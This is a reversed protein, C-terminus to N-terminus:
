ICKKGSWCSSSSIYRDYGHTIQIVESKQLLRYRKTISIDSQFNENQAGIERSIKFNRLRSAPKLYYHFNGLIKAITTGTATLPKKYFYFLVFRTIYYLIQHDDYNIEYRHCTHLTRSGLSRKEIYEQTDKKKEM